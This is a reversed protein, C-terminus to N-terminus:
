LQRGGESSRGSGSGSSSPSSQQPSMSGGSPQRSPAPEARPPASRPQAQQRPPQSVNPQSRQQQRQVNQPQPRERPQEVQRPPSQTETRQPRAPRTMQPSRYEQTSRPQQYSPPTYTRPRQAGSQNSDGQPSDTRNPREPQSRTPAENPDRQPTVSRDSPTREVPMRSEPQRMTPQEPNRSEPQRQPRDPQVERTPRETARDAPTRNTGQNPAERVTRGSQPDRVVQGRGGTQERPETLNGEAGRDRVERSTGAGGTPRQPDTVVTGGARGTSIQPNGGSAGAGPQMTRGRESVGTTPTTSTGPSASPNNRGRNEFREAFSRDREQRQNDGGGIITGVPRRHGYLYNSRDRSNYIYQFNAPNSWWGQHFGAHFGSWYGHNWRNWSGLHWSHPSWHMNWSWWGWNSPSFHWPSRWHFPSHWADWYFAPYLHMFAPYHFALSGFGHYISVGFYHPNHTYWFMNTFWPDFYSWRHIPRHFRRIRAAFSFDHHIETDFYRRETYYDEDTYTYTEQQLIEEDSYVYYEQVEQNAEHAPMQDAQQAIHREPKETPPSLRVNAQRPVYYIGDFEGAAFRTTTCSGLLLLGATSLLIQTKM